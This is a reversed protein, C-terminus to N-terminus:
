EEHCTLAFGLKDRSVAGLRDKTIVEYVANRSLGAQKAIANISIARRANRERTSSYRVARLRKIIGADSLTKEMM